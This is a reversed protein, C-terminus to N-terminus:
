KAQTVLQLLSGAPDDGALRKADQHANSGMQDWEQQQNWAIELTTGFSRPTAADAIFGTKGQSLIEHNGGADTTIVTRGCMMAELVALPTGEGHSALVKAHCERWVEKMDRVYGRMQVKDQLGFHNILRRIYAEDPGSGYINLRWDRDAWKSQSLCELLVDHGKWRTELRAVCGFTVPFEPMPLPSELNLRPGNMVVSANEFKSALQRQALNLNHASVFAWDSISNAFAQIAHDSHNTAPLSEACFHCFFLIRKGQQALANVTNAIWPLNLTDFLSGANVLIVDCENLLSMQSAIRERVLYLRTPKMPSRACVELGQSRLEAVQSSSAVLQHAGLVVNHGQEMARVAFHYWVEETGAWEYNECTSLIGIRM